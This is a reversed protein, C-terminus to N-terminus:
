KGNRKTNKTKFESLWHIQAPSIRDVPRTGTKWTNRYSEVMENRRDIFGNEVTKKRYNSVVQWRAAHQATATTLVSQADSIVLVGAPYQRLRGTEVLTLLYEHAADFETIYEMSGDCGAFENPLKKHWKTATEPKTNDNRRFGAQGDTLRNNQGPNEGPLLERAYTATEVFVFEYEKNEAMKERIKAFLALDTETVSYSADIVVVIQPRITAATDRAGNPIRSAPVHLGEWHRLHATGRRERTWDTRPKPAIGNGSQMDVGVLNLMRGIDINEVDDIKVLSRPGTEQVTNLNDTDPKPDGSLYDSIAAKLDSDDNGPETDEGPESDDALLEYVAATDMGRTDIGITDLGYVAGDPLSVGFHRLTDNIICDAAINHRKHDAFRDDLLDARLVHLTEHALTGAIEEVSLTEAFEPNFRCVIKGGSLGVAATPVGTDIVPMGVNEVKTTFFPLNEDLWQVADSLKQITADM